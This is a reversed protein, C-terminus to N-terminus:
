NGCAARTREGFPSLLSVCLMRNHRAATQYGSLVERTLATPQSLHASALEVVSLPEPLEPAAPGAVQVLRMTVLAKRPAYSPPVAPTLCVPRREAVLTLAEAVPLVPQIELAQAMKDRYLSDEGYRAPLLLVLDQRERGALVVTWVGVAEADSGTVMVGGLPCSHVLNRGLEVVFVPPYSARLSTGAAVLPAWGARELEISARELEVLSRLLRNSDTPIRLSQDLATAAFDLFLSGPAEEIHGDKHWERADILYFRGLELWAAGDDPATALYRGLMETAQMRNGAKALAAARPAIGPDVAAQGSVAAPLLLLTALASARGAHLFRM